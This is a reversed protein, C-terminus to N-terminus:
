TTYDLNISTSSLAKGALVSSTTTSLTGDVQVYYTANPTLGQTINFTRGVASSSDVRNIGVIQSTDPDYAIRLVGSATSTSVSLSNGFTIDTGSVTSIQIVPSTGSSAEQYAQIMHGTSTDFALGGNFGSDGAVAETGFSISTGSVTGVRASWTSPSTSRNAYAVVVKQAVPEYEVYIPAVVFNTFVTASGVSISTGSVTGVAATGYNSNGSDTYVLVAKQANTDYTVSTFNIESATFDYEAGFSISTGSITGVILHGASSTGYSLIVKQSISDYTADTGAISGTHFDGASGFSIATGSVTGVKARGPFPAVNNKYAVVVKQANEDYTLALGDVENSQVVVPTGFSMSDGSVTGVVATLYNSNGSDIYAIVAKDNATDYVIRQQANSVNGSEYAVATNATIADEVLSSSSVIGGKITVSGSATDSIASDTIGIFDASNSSIPAFVASKGLSSSTYGIVVKKAESDFATAMPTNAPAASEFVLASGFSISTGSVTGAIVTGYYSNGADRYAIAVKNSSSDFTASVNDTTASEFVAASGFSISTGSVTGVIATGYNSNGADKYALVVKNASSDFTASIAETNATEFVVASGFSISTGSVTGVIASGYLTNGNRYAMVVKNASSDFAISIEDAYVTQSVVATGFSISTGSVTGVIATGYNNNPRDRYAIVTKNSSSDFATSIFDSNASEFVVAAGFSISTGSVTGVIATGYSSNSANRYAIVVKGENSDFTASVNFTSGTSFTVPTGFSISTGSVTGVVALGDGDNTGGEDRFAIIIKANVSDYTAANWRPGSGGESYFTIPSGVSQATEGVAEVTGDTKLAVTVGNGLTGSAVFNVNKGGGGAPLLESLNSM